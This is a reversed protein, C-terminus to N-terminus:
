QESCTGVSLNCNLVTGASVLLCFCYWGVCFSLVHVTAYSRQAKSTGTQMSIVKRHQTPVDFYPVSCPPTSAGNKVVLSGLSSLSITSSLQPTWKPSSTKQELLIKRPSSARISSSPNRQSKQFSLRFIHMSIFDLVLGILVLSFSLVFYSVETSLIAQRGYGWGLPFRFPFFVRPFSCGGLIISTMFLGADETTIIEILFTLFGSIQDLVIYLLLFKQPYAAVNPFFAIQFESINLKLFHYM